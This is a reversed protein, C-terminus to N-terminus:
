PAYIDNVKTISGFENLSQNVMIHTERDYYMQRFKSVENKLAMPNGGELYTDLWDTKVM